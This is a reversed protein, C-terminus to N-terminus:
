IRWKECNWVKNVISKYFDVEHSVIIISGEYAILARKLEEKAQIDLHNTPEDLFLVNSEKNIIKCLRVKAQEGGSLVNIKSNIHDNTLGCRALIKRIETRNKHPFENWVDELVINSNDNIVEQEYYGISLCPGLKISGEIPPIIGMLSKLLTTKGIGNAGIIAIKDKRNMKLDLPVTLAKDYGIVLNNTEFIIRWPEKSFIFNFHPSPKNKNIEIKVIKNLKKERSKAQAATSARAKNKRIYDELKNIKEQQKNYEILLQEKQSEYLNLFMDYNGKYRTLHKHELHYVVNVVSNLFDTDHSILIFANEYNKLYAKLWIINEEDLHNTPEDLLLIDPKELLLKALLVKSRQGGSLENPKSYLFERIGIGYAIGDVKSEISYFDSEDLIGQINSISNMVKVFEKGKFYQMKAYLNNLNEELLFLKDFASKLFEKVTNYNSINVNQDMYGISVKRNWEITGEDPLIENTILKMFTTKGEGNAGILGIHEGKQLEFSVNNFIIKDGFGQTMNNVSLISM